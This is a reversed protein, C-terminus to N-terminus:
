PSAVHLESTAPTGLTRYVFGLSRCQREDLVGYPDLVLRGRMVKRVSDLAVTKFEPWPTMVALVDADQVAELESSAEFVNSGAVGGLRVKPDYSRVQVKALSEVLACGPSHRTSGTGVKYALGWVAVLGDDLSALEPEVLRRAWDRRYKSDLLWTEVVEAHTGREDALERITVLDRLLNTGGLGLGPNLYAKPGIRADLRLAPAIEAWDAGVAECVEALTNTTTVSSVLFMNISIKALEASEYRMPLVPCGFVQLFDAYPGVLPIQPDACGVIFREPYLAREVARGFILTEVQCFLRDSGIRGPNEGSVLSRMFGPPLQSLFVITTDAKVHQVIQDYLARVGTLDSYGDVDVPVDLTVFVVDCSVLAKASSEFILRETHQAILNNLEPEVIPPQAARM